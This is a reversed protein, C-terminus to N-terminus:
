ARDLQEPKHTRITQDCSISSSSGAKAWEWGIVWRRIICDSAPAVNKAAHSAGVGVARILLADDPMTVLQVLAMSFVTRAPDTGGGAAVRAKAM